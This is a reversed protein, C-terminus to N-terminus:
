LYSCCDTMMECCLTTTTSRGANQTSSHSTLVRETGFHWFQQREAIKVCTRLWSSVVPFQWSTGSMLRWCSTVLGSMITVQHRCLVLSVITPLWWSTGLASVTIIKCHWLGLSVHHSVTLRCSTCHKGTLSRSTQWWCESWSRLSM